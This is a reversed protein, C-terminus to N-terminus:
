DCKLAQVGNYNLRRHTKYPNIKENTYGGILSDYILINIAKKFDSGTEKMYLHIYEASRVMTNDNLPIESARSMLRLKLRPYDNFYDRFYDFNSKSLPVLRKVKFPNLSQGVPYEYVQNNIFPLQNAAIGPVVAYCLRENRKPNFFYFESISRNITCYFLEQYGVSSKVSYVYTWGEYNNNDVSPIIEVRNYDDDFYRVYTEGTIEGSRDFYVAQGEFDFVDKGEDSISMKRVKTVISQKIPKGNIKLVEGQNNAYYDITPQQITCAPNVEKKSLYKKIDPMTLDTLRIYYVKKILKSVTEPSLSNAKGENLEIAGSFEQSGNKNIFFFGMMLYNWDEDFMIKVPYTKEETQCFVDNPFSICLILGILIVKLQKM